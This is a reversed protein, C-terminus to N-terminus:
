CFKFIFLLNFFINSVTAMGRRDAGRLAHAHRGHRQRLPFEAAEVGQARGVATPEGLRVQLVPGPLGRGHAQERGHLLLVQRQVAARRDCRLHLPVSHVRDPHQHREEALQDRLRVRGQAKASAQDDEASAARAVGAAVQNHEFEPRGLQWQLFVFVFQRLAIHGM